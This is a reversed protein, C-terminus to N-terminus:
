TAVEESFEGDGTISNVGCVKVTVGSPTATRTYSHDNTTASFGDSFVVKFGTFYQSDYPATEIGLRPRPIWTVSVNGSGDRASTVYHPPWEYQSYAIDFEYSTPVSEDETLGFSVPKFYIEQGLMWQQARLFTITSDILVFRAGAPWAETKTNYRGRLLGSLVFRNSGLHTANKFQLIEDGIVCRNYNNLLGAYDVSDLAFNVQVTVTQADGYEASIEELLATETEGLTAPQETSFADYYNVGGDTSILVDAGYWASSEGAVAVYVGLQDDQDRLVPINLIEIRTDGVLGPTTSIPARLDLGAATSGYVARGGDKKGKFKLYGKDDNREEIRIRYKNGEQDIYQVVDSPVMDTFAVTMWWEYTVPEHWKMKIHRLAITAAQDATATFPLEISDVGKASVLNSKRFAPQMNKNFGGAPDLHNVEVRIPLKDEQVITQKFAGDDRDVLDKYTFTKVIDRGRKIFRVKRDYESPDFFFAEALPKLHDTAPEKSTVPYGVVSDQYLESVDLKDQGVGVRKCIDLVIDAVLPDALVAFRGDDVNATVNRIRFQLRWGKNMAVSVLEAEGVEAMDYEVLYRDRQYRVRLWGDRIYALVNDSIGINEPRKDDITCRPSSSGTPLNTTTMGPLVPDYWYFKSVGDQVYALFPNMNQDFSLAVETIDEASLLLHAYGNPSSLWLHRLNANEEDKVATLKWVQFQLGESTDNLAVGGREWDVFFDGPQKVPDPYGTIAAISSLEDLPLM